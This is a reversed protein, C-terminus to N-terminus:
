KGRVRLAEIGKNKRRAASLGEFDIIKGYLLQYVDMIENNNFSIAHKVYGDNNNPDCLSKFLDLYKLTIENSSSSYSYDFYNRDIEDLNENPLNINFTSIDEFLKLLSPYKTILSKYSQKNLFEKILIFDYINFPISNKLKNLISTLFIPVKESGRFDIIIDDINSFTDSERETRGTTIFYSYLQYIENYRKIDKSYKDNSIRGLAMEETNYTYTFDELLFKMSAVSVDGSETVYNDSFNKDQIVVDLLSVLRSYEKNFKPEKGSELIYENITYQFDISVLDVPFAPNKKTERTRFQQMESENKTLINLRYERNKYKYKFVELGKNTDTILEKFLEKKTEELYNRLKVINEYIIRMINNKKTEISGAGVANKIYLKTDIDSTFSINNSYRRMADGGAIFLKIQYNHYLTRNIENIFANIAGRFKCMFYKDAFDIFNSYYPFSHSNAIDYIKEIFFTNYSWQKEYLDNYINIIELLYDYFNRHKSKLYELMYKQRIKDVNLGSEVETKSTSLYSFTLLGNDNLRNLNKRNDSSSPSILLYKLKFSPINFSPQIYEINFELVIKKDLIILNDMSFSIDSFFNKIYDDEIKNKKMDRAERLDFAKAKKPKRAGGTTIDLIIKINFFPEKLKSYNYSFDFEPLAGKKYNFNTEEITTNIQLNYAIYEQIDAVISYLEKTKEQWIMIDNCLYNFKLNSFTMSIKEEETYNKNKDFWYFWSLGGDCWYTYNNNNKNEKELNLIKETILNNIGNTELFGLLLKKRSIASNRFLNVKQVINEKVPILSTM